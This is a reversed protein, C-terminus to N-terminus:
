VDQRCVSEEDDTPFINMDSQFSLKMKDKTKAVKSSSVQKEM